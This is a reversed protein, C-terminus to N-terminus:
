VEALKRVFLYVLFGFAVTLWVWLAINLFQALVVDLYNIKLDPLIANSLM